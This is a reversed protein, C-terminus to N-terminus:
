KDRRLLMTGASDAEDEVLDQVALFSGDGHLDHVIYRDPDIGIKESLLTLIEDDTADDPLEFRKCLVNDKHHITYAHKPREYRIGTDTVNIPLFSRIVYDLDIYYDEDETETEPEVKEARLIEYIDEDSMGNDLMCHLTGEIAGTVNLDRDINDTAPAIVFIPQDTMRGVEYVAEDWGLLKKLREM